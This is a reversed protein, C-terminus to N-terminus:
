LMGKPSMQLGDDRHFCISFVTDQTFSMVGVYISERPNFLNDTASLHIEKSGVEQNCWQYLRQSPATHSQSVYLDPDGKHANLTIRVREPHNSSPLYLLVFHRYMGVALNCPMPYGLYLRQAQGEEPSYLEDCDLPEVIDTQIDANVISIGLAPKCKLVKLSYKNMEYHVDIRMGVTLNQYKKLWFELIETRKEYPISLWSSSLPQLRCFVGKPLDEHQFGVEDGESIGLHHFIWEPIYCKNVEPSTFELVGVYLKENTQLNTLSFTMPYQFNNRECVVLISPSLIIKDTSNLRTRGLSSDSICIINQPFTALETFYQIASLSDTHSLLCKDGDRCNGALFYPCPDGPQPSPSSEEQSNWSQSSTYLLTHPPIDSHIPSVRPTTSELPPTPTSLPHPSVSPSTNEPTCTAHSKQDLTDNLFNILTPSLNRPISKIFSSDPSTCAGM